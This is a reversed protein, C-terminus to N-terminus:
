LAGVGWDEFKGLHNSDWAPLQSIAKLLVAGILLAGVAQVASRGKEFSEKERMKRYGERSPIHFNGTLSFYTLCQTLIDGEAIVRNHNGVVSLFSGISMGCHFKIDEDNMMSFVMSNDPNTCLVASANLQTCEIGLADVVTLASLSNSLLLLGLGIFLKRISKM